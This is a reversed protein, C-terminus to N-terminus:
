DRSMPPESDRMEPEEAEAEPEIALHVRFTTGKGVESTVSVTGGMAEVWHRVISLGLGTGGVSRSRGTDVRYFREFLRPLHQAPIGPGNDAVTIVTGRVAAEAGVAVKSGSPCYNIANQLLNGLVHELGNANAYAPFPSPVRSAVEIQKERAAIQFTALSSDVLKHLDLMGCEVHFQQSELQSLELLDNVLAGLRLANRGIIGTFSQIAEPDGTAAGEITEVASLIATVPTRLEHSANAVFEQRVTELRRRETIDVLVALAGSRQRLRRINTLVDRGSPGFHLEASSNEGKDLATQLREVLETDRLV